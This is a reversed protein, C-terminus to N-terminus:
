GARSHATALSKLVASLNLRPPYKGHALANVMGAIALLYLETLTFVLTFPCSSHEALLFAFSLALTTEQHDPQQYLPHMASATITSKPVASM